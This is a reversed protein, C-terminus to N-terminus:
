SRTARQMAAVLDDPSVPKELLTANMAAVRKAAERQGSIVIVPISRLDASRSREDLFAWGDLVPMALDLVIVAPRQGRRLRLYDLAERGNRATATTFRYQRLMRALARRLDVDDDVILALPEGGAAAAADDM